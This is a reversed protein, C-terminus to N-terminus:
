PSNFKEGQIIAFPDDTSSLTAFPDPTGVARNLIPFPRTAQNTTSTRDIHDEPLGHDHNRCELVVKLMVVMDAIGM